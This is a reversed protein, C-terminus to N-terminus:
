RFVSEGKTQWASQGREVGSPSQCQPRPCKPSFLEINPIAECLSIDTHRTGAELAM